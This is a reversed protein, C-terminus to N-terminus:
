RPSIEPNESGGRLDDDDSEMRRLMRLTIRKLRYISNNCIVYGIQDDILLKHFCCHESLITDLYVVMPRGTIVSIRHEPFPLPVKYLFLALRDLRGVPGVSKYSFRYIKGKKLHSFDAPKLANRQMGYLRSDPLM